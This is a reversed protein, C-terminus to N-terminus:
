KMRDSYHYFCGNCAPFLRRSVYQRLKRARPGNWIAAFSRNDRINGLFYGFCIFVDGNPMIDLQHWPATCYNSYHLGDRSDRYYAEVEEPQFYPIFEVNQYKQVKKIEQKFRAFDIGSPVYTYGKWFDMDKIKFEKLFVDKQAKFSRRGIFMMHQFSYRDIKIKNRTMLKILEEMHAYNLESITYLISLFPKNGNRKKLDTIKKLGAMLAQFHSLPRKTYSSFVSPPGGPSVHVEDVTGKIKAFNDALLAGNTLLSVKIGKKHAKQALVHWQKYLLPEGGSLSIRKPHYSIIEDTFRQLEKETLDPKYKDLFKRDHCSGKEGWWPCVHCRWCCALSLTFYVDDLLPSEDPNKIGMKKLAGNLAATDTKLIEKM